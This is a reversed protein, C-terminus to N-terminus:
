ACCVSPVGDHLYELLASGTPVPDVQWQALGRSTSAPADNCWCLQALFAVQAM